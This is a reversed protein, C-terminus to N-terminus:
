DKLFHRCSNRIRSNRTIWIIWKQIKFIDTSHPLNGGLIIGYTIISLVYSYYIM